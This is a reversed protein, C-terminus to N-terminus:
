VVIAANIKNKNESDKLLHHYVLVVVKENDDAYVSCDLGIVLTYLILVTIAIIKRKMIEEM